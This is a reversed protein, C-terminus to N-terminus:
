EKKVAIETYIYGKDTKMGVPKAMPLVISKDKNLKWVQNDSTYVEMEGSNVICIKPYKYTEASIDTNEALSFYTIDYGNGSYISKSVTCGRM